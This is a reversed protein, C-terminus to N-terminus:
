FAGKIFKCIFTLPIIWYIKVSWCKGTLTYDGSNSELMQSLLQVCKELNKNSPFKGRYYILTNICISDIFCKCVNWYASINIFYIYIIFREQYVTCPRLSNIHWLYKICFVTENVYGKPLMSPRKLQFSINESMCDNDNRLIVFAFWCCVRWLCTQVHLQCQLTWKYKKM